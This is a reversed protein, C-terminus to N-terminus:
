PHWPLWQITLALVASITGLFIGKRFYLPPYWNYNFSLSAITTLTVVPEGGVNHGDYLTALAPGTADCSITVAFVFGPGPNILSDATIRRRDVKKWEEISWTSPDVRVGIGKKSTELM